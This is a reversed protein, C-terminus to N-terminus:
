LKKLDQNIIEDLKFKNRNLATELFKAGAGPRKFKMKSGKKGIGEHVAAAYRASFGMILNPKLISKTKGQMESVTSSHDSAMGGADEGKFQPEGQVSNATVIFWSARLNSTDIPTKPSTKEMDRRVLIAFRIMGAMSLKDIRGKGETKIKKMVKEIGKLRISM